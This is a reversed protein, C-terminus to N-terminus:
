KPGDDSARMRQRIRSLAVPTVGLYSAIHFQPILEELRPTRARLLRYREEASLALFDYERRAKRVFLAEAILRGVRDWVPHRDYLATFRRYDGILLRCDSLAEISATSVGESLLDFYSGSFDGALCFQKNFESGNPRIYFERLAGKIVVAFDTAKEGARALYEGRKLDRGRIISRLARWERPPIDAMQGLARRLVKLEGPKPPSTRTQTM